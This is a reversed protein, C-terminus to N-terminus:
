RKEARKIDEDICIGPFFLGVLVDECADGYDLVAVLGRLSAVQDAGGFGQVGHSTRGVYRKEDVVADIHGKGDASFAHM